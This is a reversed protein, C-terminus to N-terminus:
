NIFLLQPLPPPFILNYFLHLGTFGILIFTIWYFVVYNLPWIQYYPVSAIAITKLGANLNGRPTPGGGGGGM